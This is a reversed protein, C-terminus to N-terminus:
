DRQVVESVPIRAFRANSFFSARALQRAVGDTRPYQKGVIEFTKTEGMAKNMEKLRLAGPTPRMEPREMRTTRRLTKLKPLSSLKRSTGLAHKLCSGAM